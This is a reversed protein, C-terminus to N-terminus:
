KLVGRWHYREQVASISVYAEANEPSNAWVRWKGGKYMCFVPEDDRAFRRQYVGDRVPKVTGPYWETLKM